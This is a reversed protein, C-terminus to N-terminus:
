EREAMTSLRAPFESKLQGLHVRRGGGVETEEKQKKLGSFWQKFSRVCLVERTTCHNLIQRGICPVRTRARTRSSGVNQPAVLGRTGCSSLRRELARSGCSSFGRAVVVSARVGPARAGCCLSAVATLIGGVAILIGRM